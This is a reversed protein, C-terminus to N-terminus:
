FVSTTIVENYGTPSVVELVSLELPNAHRMSQKQRCREISSCPQQDELCSLDETAQSLYVVDISECCREAGFSYFIIYKQGM